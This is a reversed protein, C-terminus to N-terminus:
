TKQIFELCLFILNEKDAIMTIITEKKKKKHLAAQAVRTFFLFLINVM